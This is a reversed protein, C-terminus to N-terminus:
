ALPLAWLLIRRRGTLQYEVLLNLLVLLFVLAFIEPRLFHRYNGVVLAVVALLTALVADRTLREALRYALAFMLLGIAGKVFVLLDFGLARHLLYVVVSPLWEHAIFPYDKAETFPFLVTRPISGDNWIMGGITVQLWFDNSSIPVFTLLTVLLLAPVLVMLREADIARVDYRTALPTADMVNAHQAPAAHALPPLLRDCDAPPLQFRGCSFAAREARRPHHRRRELWLRCGPGRKARLRERFYGRRLFDARVRGRM